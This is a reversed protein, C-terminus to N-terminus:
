YITLKKTGEEVYIYVRGQADTTFLTVPQHTDWDLVNVETYALYDATFFPQTLFITGNFLNPEIPDLDM